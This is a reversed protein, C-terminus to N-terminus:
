KDSWLKSDRSALDRLRALQTKRSESLGKTRAAWHALYAGLGDGGSCGALTLLLVM